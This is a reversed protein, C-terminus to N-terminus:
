CARSVLKLIGDFLRNLNALRIAQDYGAVTPALVEGPDTRFNSLVLSASFYDHRFDDEGRHRAIGEILANYEGEAYHRRVADRQDWWLDQKTILTIMWLRGPAANLHPAIEKLADLEVRRMEALYTGLFGEISMGPQYLNLDRYSLGEFSHYGWAVVNIIGAARGRALNRYLEPWHHPRRRGQGPPVLLTCVVDGGLSYEEMTISEQYKSVMLDPKLRGSLFQGLTTKGTGGIGFIAIRLHGRRLYFRLRKLARQLASSKEWLLLAAEGIEVWM